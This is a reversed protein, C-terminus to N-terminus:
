LGHSSIHATLIVDDRKRHRWVYRHLSSQLRALGQYANFNMLFAVSILLVNKMIKRKEKRIQEASMQAVIKTEIVDDDLGSKAPLDFDGMVQTDEVTVAKESDMKLTSSWFSCVRLFHETSTKHCTRCSKNLIEVKDSLTIWNNNFEISPLAYVTNLLFNELYCM